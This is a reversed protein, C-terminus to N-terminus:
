LQVSIDKDQCQRKGLCSLSFGNPLQPFLLTVSFWLSRLLLARWHLKWQPYHRGEPHTLHRCRYGGGKEGGAFQASSQQFGMGFRLCTAQLTTGIWHRSQVQVLAWGSELTPSALDVLFTKGPKLSHGNHCTPQSMHPGKHRPEKEGIVQPTTQRRLM